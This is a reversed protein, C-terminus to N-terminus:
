SAFETLDCLVSLVRRCLPGERELDFKRAMLYAGSRQRLRSIDGEAFTRPNRASDSWDVWTLIPQQRGAYSTQMFLTQFLSEDPCLSHAFYAALGRERDLLALMEAACDRPLCWWSSGYYLRFPCDRRFVPFTRQRGGTLLHWCRRLCRAPLTNRLLFGPHYVQNRKQFRLYLPHGPGLVEIFPTGEPVASFRAAAAAGGAIPLDQGSLLWLYDFAAGASLAARILSVTARCQSVTGWTVAASAERPLLTVGQTLLAERLRHNKRDAHVFVHCDYIAQLSRILLNVQEPVKHCQILFAIKPGDM